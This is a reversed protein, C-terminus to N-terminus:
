SFGCINTVTVPPAVSKKIRVWEKTHELLDGKETNAMMKFFDLFNRLNKGHYSYVQHFLGFNRHYLGASLLRANNIPCRDFGLFRKTYLEEKISKFRSLGRRYIERRQTIIEQYDSSSRYLWELETILLDLFASFTEEDRAINLATRTQANRSGYKDDLFKVAGMVGMFQALGENFSSQGGVYITVHTLEHIITAVLLAPSWELMNSTIPDKFWGLTSYAAASRIVVDYDRAELRSKEKEAEVRKFFGLYPMRGVVPFWWTKLVFQDKPSASVVWIPDTIPAPYVSNYNKTEKIGLELEAYKKVSQILEVKELQAENLLAKERAKSIEESGIIIKAQGWAAHVM